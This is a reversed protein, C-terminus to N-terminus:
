EVGVDSPFSQHTRVVLVEGKELKHTRVRSRCGISVVLRAISAVYILQIFWDLNFSELLKIRQSPYFSKRASGREGVDPVFDDPVTFMFMCIFMCINSSSIVFMSSIIIIMFMIIHTNVIICMIISHNNIIHIIPGQRHGSLLRGATQTENLMTYIYIYIYIYVCQTYISIYIYLVFMYVYM